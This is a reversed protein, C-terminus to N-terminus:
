NLLACSMIICSNRHGRRALRSTYFPPETLLRRPDRSPHLNTLLDQLKLQTLSTQLDTRHIRTSITTRTAAQRRNRNLPSM